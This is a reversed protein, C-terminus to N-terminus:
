VGRRLGPGSVHLRHGMNGPKTGLHRETPHRRHPAVLDSRSSGCRLVGPCAKWLHCGDLRPSIEILKAGHRTVKAQAYVPGDTIGLLTAAENVMTAVDSAAQEGIASAPMTHGSVLGIHEPWVHRDSVANFVPRGAVLYRNVSVEPGELWEEVIATQTRSAEQARVLAAGLDNDDVRTIGRQGQSDAPKVIVSGAVSPQPDNPGVRAYWPNGRFASEALMARMLTKNNCATAVAEGVLHPLGFTEGVWGVVPMAVDSGVSYVVDIQQSTLYDVLRDRDTFSFDARADALASAPGPDAACVHVSEGRRQAAAVADAQVAAAGLVLVRKM